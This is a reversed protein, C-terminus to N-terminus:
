AELNRSLQCMFTTLNDTRRVAVKVGWSINWLNMETPSQTSELFMTRGSLNHGHPNSCSVERIKACHGFGHGGGGLGKINCFYKRMKTEKKRM